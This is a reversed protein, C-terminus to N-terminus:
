ALVKALPAELFSSFNRRCMDVVFEEVRM